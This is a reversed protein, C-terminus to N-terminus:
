MATGWWRPWARVGEIFEEPQDLVGPLIIAGGYQEEHVCAHPRALEAPKSHATHFKELAGNQHALGKSRHTVPQHRPRRLRAVLSHDRQRPEQAIHEGLVQGPPAVLQGPREGGVVVDEHADLALREVALEQAVVDDSRGERGGAEGLVEPGIVEAVSVGGLEDVHAGTGKGDLLAQAVGVHQGGEAAVAM